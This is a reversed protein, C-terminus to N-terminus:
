FKEWDPMVNKGEASPDLFDDGLVYAFLLKSIMWRGDQYEFSPVWVLRQVGSPCQYQPLCKSIVTVVATHTTPDFAFIRLASSGYDDSKAVEFGAQREKLNAIVSEVKRLGGESRWNGTEFARIVEGATACEPQGLGPTVDSAKCTYDIVKLRAIFADLSGGALEKNLQELAARFGADTNADPTPTVTGPTVTPSKVPETPGKTPQETTGPPPTTTPDDDDDGCAALFLASLGAILIGMAIPRLYRLAM